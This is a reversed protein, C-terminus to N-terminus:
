RLILSRTNWMAARAIRRRMMCKTEAWLHYTLCLKGSWCMLSIMAELFMVDSINRTGALRLFPHKPAFTEDVATPLPAIRLVHGSCGWWSWIVVSGVHVQMDNIHQDRLTQQLQELAEAAKVYCTGGQHYSDGRPLAEALQRAAAIRRRQTTAAKALFSSRLEM